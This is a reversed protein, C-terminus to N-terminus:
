MKEPATVGLLGLGNALVLRVSHALKLRALQVQSLGAAEMASALNDRIQERLTRGGQEM